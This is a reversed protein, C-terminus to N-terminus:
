HKHHVALNHKPATLLSCLPLTTCRHHHAQINAHICQQPSSVVTGPPATSYPLPWVSGDGTFTHVVSIVRIRRMTCVPGLGCGAVPTRESGMTVSHDMQCTRGYPM